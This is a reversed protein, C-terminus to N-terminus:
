TTGRTLLLIYQTSEQMPHCVKALQPVRTGIVLKDASEKRHVKSSTDGTVLIAFELERNLEEPSMWGEM